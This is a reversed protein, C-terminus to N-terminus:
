RDPGISRGDQGSLFVLFFCALNTKTTEKQRKEVESVKSGDSISISIMELRALQGYISM